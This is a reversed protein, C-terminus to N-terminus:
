ILKGRLDKPVVIQKGRGYKVASVTQTNSSIVTIVGLMAVLAALIKKFKKM